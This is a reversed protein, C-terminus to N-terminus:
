DIMREYLAIIWYNKKHKPWVKVLRNFIAYKVRNLAPYKTEKNQSGTFGCLPCIPSNWHRYNEPFLYKDIINQFLLHELSGTAHTQLCRFGFPILLNELNNKDFSRFHLNYNFASKCSPCKTFYNELKEEYPVSIIVYKGAISTINQLGKMFSQIPLHELVELCTVCDFSQDGFPLEDISAELKEVRVYKLAALSRDVGLLELEPKLQNLKNLFVGNGCGVDVVSKVNGPIMQITTNIRQMTFSDHRAEGKWFAEHEYYIKELSM